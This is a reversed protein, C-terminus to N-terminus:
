IGSIVIMQEKTPVPSGGTNELTIAFAQVQVHGFAKMKQIRYVDGKDTSILGADVPQGNIIAWLQYQKGEPAAPLNGHDVYVDGSSNKMWYIKAVADKDPQTTNLVIPIANKDKVVDMDSSMGAAFERQQVLQQQTAALQKSAKGYKHYFVYLLALSSFFLILCAAAAMKWFSNLSRVIAQRQPQIETVNTSNIHSFIKEKLGESPSVAFSSAYQELKNQIDDLEARVEPYMDAWEEVRRAEEDSALGTVYLELLGTSIIDKIEM